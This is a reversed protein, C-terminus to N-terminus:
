SESEQSRSRTQGKRQTSALILTQMFFHLFWFTISTDKSYIWRHYCFVRGNGIKSFPLALVARRFKDDPPKPNLILNEVYYPQQLSRGSHRWFLGKVIREVVRQIRPRDFKIAPSQGLWIGGESVLDVRRFSRRILGFFAPKTRLSPLIRMDIIQEAAPDEASATAIFWRFYEDDKAGSNNCRHCAPVTIMNTPRPKQFLGKPPIHDQTEAPCGCLYCDKGRRGRM